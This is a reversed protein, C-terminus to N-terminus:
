EISMLYTRLNIKKGKIGLRDRISNRFGEVTRPSIEMIVAMERTKKGQKIFNAIKIESATFGLYKYSLKRSLPSIIENLNADVIDLYAKQRATLKGKKLKQIYPNILDRVNFLVKEELESKDEDRKRLLVKLATNVEELNDSKTELEKGRAAMAENNMAQENIDFFMGNVFRENDRTGFIGTAIVHIWRWERARPHYIRFKENFRLSKIGKVLAKRIAGLDKPHIKFWQDLDMPFVIGAIDGASPSVFVVSLKRPRDTNFKLRFVSFDSATEFLLRKHERTEKLKREIEKEKTVDRGCGVTGVIKGTEDRLPAKHVDLVLLKGRVLGDELFRMPKNNELVIYDSNECIEGFTHDHRRKREREAFYLDNKGVTHEPSECKLLNDCLAQNAFFYRNDIDKAWIMDPANDTIMRIMKYQSLYEKNRLALEKEVKGYKDELKKLKLELEKQDTKQTM